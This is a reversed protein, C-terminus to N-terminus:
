PLCELVATYHCGAAVLVFAHWTANQFRLSRWLHFTVGASYLVGGAAILWLTSGALTGIVPSLCGGGGLGSSTLSRGIPELRGPLLLKLVGGIAVLWVAALLSASAM